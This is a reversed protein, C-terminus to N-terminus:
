NYLFNGLIPLHKLKINPPIPYFPVARRMAELVGEDLPMYGSSDMIKLKSVSGDREVTFLLAVKGQLGPQANEPYKWLKLIRERIHQLYPGLNPDNSNLPIVEEGEILPGKGPTKAPAEAISVPSTPSHFTSKEGLVEAVKVGEDVGEAIGRRQGPQVLIKELEESSPLVTGKVIGGEGMRGGGGVSKPREEHFLPSPVAEMTPLEGKAQELLSEELGSGKGQRGSLNKTLAELSQSPGGSKGSAVMSKLKKTESTEAVPVAERVETIGEKAILIDEPLTGSTVRKRRPDIVKSIEIEPSPTERKLQAIIKPKVSPALPTEKVNVKGKEESLISLDTSERTKREVIKLKEEINKLVDPSKKELRALMKPKLSPKPQLQIPKEVGKAVKISETKPPTKTPKSIEAPKSPEKPRPLSKAQLERPKEVPVRQEAKPEVTKEKPSPSLDVLQVPVPVEYSEKVVLPLNLTILFLTLHFLLSTIQFSIFRKTEM